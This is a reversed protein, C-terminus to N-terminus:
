FFYCYNIILQTMLKKDPVWIAVRAALRVRARAASLERQQCQNKFM